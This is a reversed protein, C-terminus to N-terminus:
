TRQGRLSPHCQIYHCSEWCVSARWLQKVQNDHQMINTFMAIIPSPLQQIFISSDVSNYKSQMTVTTIARSLMRTKCCTIAAFSNHRRPLTWCPRLRDPGHPGDPNGKKDNNTDGQLHPMTISKLDQYIEHLGSTPLLSKSSISYGFVLFRM